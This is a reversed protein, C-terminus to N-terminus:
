SICSFFPSKSSYRSPIRIVAKGIIRGAEMDAHAQAAEELDYERTILPTLKRARVHELVSQLEAKTGGYVGLVTLQRSYLDRLDVKTERGATAGPLVIRGTASISKITQQWTTSGVSDFVVDAGKGRTTTMVRSPVEEKTYIIVEDAGAKFAAEAKQDNSATAIVTAGILKAIQVAANGLGGAAGWILATEGPKLAARSVLGHWATMFTVPVASAVKPDIGDLEILNYTPVSILQAYTGDTQNGLLARNECQDERGSTCFRCTRDVLLPYLVVPVGPKVDAEDPVEKIVGSGDAGLIRPLTIRFAGSRVWIDVHNVSAYRLGVLAEGSKLRPNEAETVEIKEPGGQERILAAIM